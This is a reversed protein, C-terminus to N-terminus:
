ESVYFDASQILDSVSVIVHSAETVCLICGVDPKGLICVVLRNVSDYYGPVSHWRVLTKSDVAHPTGTRRDVSVLPTVGTVYTLGTESV